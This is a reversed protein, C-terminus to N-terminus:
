ARVRGCAPGRRYPAPSVRARLPADVEALARADLRLGGRRARRLARGDLAPLRRPRRRDRGRRAAAARLAALIRLRHGDVATRARFRWARHRLPPGLRWALVEARRPLGVGARAVGGGRAARRAGARLDASRRPADRARRRRAARRVDREPESWATSSPSWRPPSRPVVITRCSIPPASSSSRGRPM